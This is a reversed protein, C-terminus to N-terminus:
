CGLVVAIQSLDSRSESCMSFQIVHVFLMDVLSVLRKYDRSQTQNRPVFSRLYLCRGSSHDCPSRKRHWSDHGQKRQIWLIHGEHTQKSDDHTDHNTAQEDHKPPQILMSLLQGMSKTPSVQPQGNVCRASQRRTTVSQTWARSSETPYAELRDCRHPREADNWLVRPMM